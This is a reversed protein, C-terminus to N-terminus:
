ADLNLALITCHDIRIYMAVDGLHIKVGGPLMVGLFSSSLVPTLSFLLWFHLSSDDPADFM